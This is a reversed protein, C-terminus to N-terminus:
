SLHISRLSIACSSQILTFAVRLSQPPTFEVALPHISDMLQKIFIIIVILQLFLSAFILAFM